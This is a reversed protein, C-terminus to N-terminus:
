QVESDPPALQVGHDATVSLVGDITQLLTVGDSPVFGTIMGIEELLSSVTMGHARLAEAVRALDHAHVDDVVVSVGIM